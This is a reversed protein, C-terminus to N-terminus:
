FDAPSRPITLASWATREGKPAPRAALTLSLLDITGASSRVEGQVSGTGAGKLSLSLSLPVGAGYEVPPVLM